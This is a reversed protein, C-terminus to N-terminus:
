MLRATSKQETELAVEIIVPLMDKLAEIHTIIFIQRFQTALRTLANLILDRREYDQSGFIEDLVIFNIQAGGSREAVIQSIAIRLCLNALDQEGGSFRQIPFPNNGDYILINYDRDLELLSYRGSTTLALLESARGAILPRVRGALELRFKGFHEELAQLYIIEEKIATIDERLQKQLTIEATLGEIEKRLAALEERAAGLKERAKDLEATKKDVLQGAAQFENEHYGLNQQKTKLEGIEQHTEALLKEVAAIQQEVKDKRSVREDLGAAKEKLPLLREFETKIKNHEEKNYEVVGLEGIERELLQKQRTFNELAEQIRKGTQVAEQARSSERALKEKDHRLKRLETELASLTEQQKNEEEACEKYERRLKAILEDLDHIVSEYHTGLQQTCLPCASDPGLKKVQELRASEKKGEDTKSKIIGQVASLGSRCSAIQQELSLEHKNLEDLQQELKAYHIASDAYEEGRKTERSINDSLRELEQRKHHLSNFRLAAQDLLDKNKMIEAFGALETLLEGLKQEAATIDRRDTKSRELQKDNEELRSQLKGLPKELAIYEDKLHTQRNKETKAQELQRTNERVTGELGTIGADKDRKSNELEGLRSQLVAIDKLTSEKGALFKQKDNRDQRVQGRADDIKDLGILRNISQRREEPRLTSLRALDKQRAYVSTTFSDYDLQLLNEIYENVGRDQVAEPEANGDRYVAAESVANKGKLKRSIRYEHESFTFDMVVCCSEKDDASQTRIDLKDTRGLRNGYLAWGIAEVITSKGAGNRGIIGILNEPFELELNVFRRYNELTLNKIIM